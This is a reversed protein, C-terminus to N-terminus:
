STKEGDRAKLLPKAAAAENAEAQWKSKEQELVKAVARQFEERTTFVEDRTFTTKRDTVPEEPLRPVDPSTSNIVMAPPMASLIRGYLDDRDAATAFIFEMERRGTLLVQMTYLVGQEPAYQKYIIKGRNSSLDIDDLYVSVIQTTNLLTQRGNRRVLIFPSGVM